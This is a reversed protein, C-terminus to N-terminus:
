GLLYQYISKMGPCGTDDHALQFCDGNCYQYYKCMLCETRQIKEQGVLKNDVWKISSISNPAYCATNPCGGISGDPNITFVTQMCKRARCGLFEGKISQEVGQFIPITINSYPPMKSTMYANYLWKDVDINKPILKQKANNVIVFQNVARGTNTLREFNLQTVGLNLMYDFLQKPRYNNILASTICITPQVIIGAKILTIVNDEWLKLQHQSKYRIVDDWSTQIMKVHSNAYPVMMDFLIMHQDILQYVLNTTISWHVNIHKTRKIVGILQDTNYLCPEGGHLQCNITDKSHSIAFGSIWSISKNLTLEDMDSHDAMMENFCHDCKLNCRNTPKLYITYDM